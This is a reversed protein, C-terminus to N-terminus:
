AEERQGQRNITYIDNRDGKPGPLVKPYLGYELYTERGMADRMESQPPVTM